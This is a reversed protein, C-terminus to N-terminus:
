VNRFKVSVCMKRRKQLQDLVSDVKQELVAHDPSDRISGTQDLKHELRQQLQLLESEANRQVASEVSQIKELLKREMEAVNSMLLMELSDSKLQLDGIMAIIKNNTAPLDFM